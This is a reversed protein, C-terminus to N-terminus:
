SSTVGPSSRKPIPVLEGCPCQLQRSGTGFQHTWSLYVFEDLVPCLAGVLTSSREDENPYMAARIRNMRTRAQELQTRSEGLEAITREAKNQVRWHQRWAVLLDDFASEAFFHLAM